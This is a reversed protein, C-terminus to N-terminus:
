PVESNPSPTDLDIWDADGPMAWENDPIDDSVLDPMDDEDDSVLDPMDDYLESDDNVGYGYNEEPINIQLSNQIELDQVQWFYQNYSM